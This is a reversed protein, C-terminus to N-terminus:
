HHGQSRCWASIAETTEQETYIKTHSLGKKPQKPKLVVLESKIGPPGDEVMTEIEGVWKWADLGVGIRSITLVMLMVVIVLATFVLAAGFAGILSTPIVAFESYQSSVLLTLAIGLLVVIQQGSLRMAKGAIWNFFQMSRLLGSAEDGSARILLIPKNPDAYSLRDIHQEFDLKANHTRKYRQSIVIWILFAPVVIAVIFLASSTAWGLWGDSMQALRPAFQYFGAVVIALSLLLIGVSLPRRRPFLFPTAMCIVGDIRKQIEPNQLAYLAVNGGHSHALLFHQDDESEAAQELIHAQLNEAGRLRAANTLDTWKRRWSNAGWPPPADFEVDDDFLRALRARFGDPYQQEDQTIWNANANFTGHICTFRITM